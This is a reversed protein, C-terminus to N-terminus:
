GILDALRKIREKQDPEKKIEELEQIKENNVAKAASIEIAAELNTETLDDKIKSIATALTKDDSSDNGANDKRKNILRVIIVFVAPLLILSYKWYKKVYPNRRFIILLTAVLLVAALILIEWSM